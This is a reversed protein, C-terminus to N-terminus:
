LAARMRIQLPTEGAPLSAIPERREGGDARFGFSEYLGRAEENSALLWVVAEACGRERLLGLGARLLASGIGSRWRGPTVYLAAVEGADLAVTCFGVVPAGEEGAVLTPTDADEIREEWARTRVGVSLGDLAPDPLKGRYGARWAGVHVAAIAAADGPEARRIRM